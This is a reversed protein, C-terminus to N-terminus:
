WARPDGYKARYADAATLFLALSTEALVTTGDPLDLRLGISPNGSAMGGPLCAVGITDKVHVVQGAAEKEALDPWAGDGELNISMSLL